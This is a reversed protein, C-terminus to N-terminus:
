GDYSANLIMQIWTANTSNYVDPYQKELWTHYGDSSQSLYAMAVSFAFLVVIGIFAFQFIM